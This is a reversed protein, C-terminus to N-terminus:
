EILDVLLTRAATQNVSAGATESWLKLFKVGDLLPAQYSTDVAPTDIEILADADDNLPLYTGDVYQSVTFAISAADWAAPMHIVMRSLGRLDIPDSLATGLPIVVQLSRNKRSM